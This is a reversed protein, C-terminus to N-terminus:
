LGYRRDRRVDWLFGFVRQQRCERRQMRSLQVHVCSIVSMIGFVYMSLLLVMASFGQVAVHACQIVYVCTRSLLM